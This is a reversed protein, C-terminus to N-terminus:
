LFRLFIYLLKLRKGNEWQDDNEFTNTNMFPINLESILISYSLYWCAPCNKDYQVLFEGETKEPVVCTDDYFHRTVKDFM